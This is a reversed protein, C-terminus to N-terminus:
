ENTEVCVCIYLMCCAGALDQCEAVFFVQACNGVSEPDKSCHPPLEVFGSLWSSMYSPPAKVNFCQAALGVLHRKNKPRSEAAPLKQPRVLEHVSVVNTTVVEETEDGWVQLEDLRDRDLFKLGRPLQVPAPPASETKKLGQGHQQRSQGQPKKKRPTAQAEIFGVLSGQMLYVGHACKCM